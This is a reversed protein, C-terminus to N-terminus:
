IHDSGSIDIHVGIGRWHNVASNVIKEVSCIVQDSLTDKVIITTKISLPNESKIYGGFAAMGLQSNFQPTCIRDPNQFKFISTKSQLLYARANVLVAENGSKGGEVHYGSRQRTNRRRPTRFIQPALKVETKYFQSEKDL